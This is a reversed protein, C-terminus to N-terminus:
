YNRKILNLKKSIRGLLNSANNIHLHIDDSCKEIFNEKKREGYSTPYGLLRNAQIMKNDQNLAKIQDESITKRALPKIDKKRLGRSSKGFQIDGNVKNFRYFDKFSPSYQLGTSECIDKMTNEPDLTFYEYRFLSINSDLLAKVYRLYHSFFKKPDFDSIEIHKLFSIYIDIADRVFAFPMLNCKDQLGEVTLLRQPPVYDNEKAPMFNVYTWDRIILQKNSSRCIGELELASKVFNDDDSGLDIGYWNKAQSKITRYSKPGIGKGGGLPNVESMIVASPLSGLCQNLITGGSRAFCVM